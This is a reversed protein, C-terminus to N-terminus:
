KVICQLFSQIELIFNLDIWYEVQEAQIDTGTLVNCRSCFPHLQKREIACLSWGCATESEWHIRHRRMQTLRANNIICPISYVTFIKFATTCAGYQAEYLIFPLRPWAFYCFPLNQRKPLLVPPADAEYFFCCAANADRLANAFNSWRADSRVCCIEICVHRCLPLTFNATQDYANLSVIKNCANCVNNIIINITTMTM